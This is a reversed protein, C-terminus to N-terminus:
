RSLDALVQWRRAETRYPFLNVEDGALGNIIRLPLRNDGTSENMFRALEATDAPSLRGDPGQIDLTFLVEAKGASQKAMRLSQALEAQQALGATLRFQLRDALADDLVAKLLVPNKGNCSLETSLGGTKLLRLIELFVAAHDAPCASIDLGGIWGHGLNNPTVAASLGSGCMFWALTAGADQVIHGDAEVVPFFIGAADRRIDTRRERYFAKFVDNGGSTKIDHETFLITRGNFYKKVIECRICGTSSFVTVSM